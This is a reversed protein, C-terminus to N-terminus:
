LWKGQRGCQLLRGSICQSSSPSIASLSHKIRLSIGQQSVQGSCGKSGTWSHCILLLYNKAIKFDASIPRDGLLPAVCCPRLLLTQDHDAVLAPRRCYCSLHLLENVAASQIGAHAFPGRM